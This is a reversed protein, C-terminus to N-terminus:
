LFVYEEDKEDDVDAALNMALQKKKQAKKSKGEGEMGDGDMSDEESGKKRVGGLVSEEEDEEEDEEMMDEYRSQSSSLYSPPTQEVRYLPQVGAAQLKETRQRTETCFTHFVERTPFYFAITLSPDLYQFDLTVIEPTHLQNLYDLMASAHASTTSSAATTHQFTELSPTAYVVHPDHGYLLRDQYGLFYIAHNVRGGLIGICHPNRLLAQIEQHVNVIINPSFHCFYLLSFSVDSIFRVPIYEPLLSHIGLRLPILVVLSYMWPSIESPPPHCLPDFFNSATEATKKESPQETVSSATKQSNSTTPLTPFTNQSPSFHLTQRQFLQKQTQLTETTAVSETIGLLCDNLAPNCCLQEAESVYITESQTVLVTVQGQYKTCHLTALDRLVYSVTSPGFWEGPLKDYKM